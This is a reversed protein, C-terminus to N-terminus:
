ALNLRYNIHAFLTAKHLLKDKNQKHKNFNIIPYCSKPFHRQMIKILARNICKCSNRDDDVGAKNRPKRIQKTKTPKQARNKLKSNSTQNQTIKHAKLYNHLIISGSATGDMGKRDFECTEYGRYDRIIEFPHTRPFTTEPIQDNSLNQWNLM